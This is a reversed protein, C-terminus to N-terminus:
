QAIDQRRAEGVEDDREDPDSSNQGEGERDEAPDGLEVAFLLLLRSSQAGKRVRELLAAGLKL